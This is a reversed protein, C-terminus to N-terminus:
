GTPGQGQVSTSLPQGSSRSAFCYYSRQGSKWQEETAPFTGQVQLDPYAAAANLDIVGGATCLTNIQQALADAGPYPAAPDASLLNTYVMQATHDATCDVVTFTEAWPSTYPQICEGGGLADWPHQGPGVAAAPKPIVTPTPTPTPTPSASPTKSAAVPHSPASAGFLSPILTGLAFLGVLVLLVALVGAILYVRRTLRPDRPDRPGRPSDRPTVPPTAPPTAAPSTPPAAPPTSAAPGAAAQAATAEPGAAPSSTPAGAPDPATPALPERAAAAADFAVTPPATTDFDYAGVGADPGAGLQPGEMAATPELLTIDGAARDADPSAQADGALGPFLIADIGTAEGQPTDVSEAPTPLPSSAAEPEVASHSGDDVQAHDGRSLDPVDDAVETGDARAFDGFLAAIGDPEDTDDLDDTDTLDGTETLDGPATLDTAESGGAPEADDPHGSPEASAPAAPLGEVPIAATPLDASAAALAEADIPSTAPSPPAGLLAETQAAEGFPVAAPPVVPEPSAPEIPPPPVIVEASAPDSEARLAERRTVPVPNADPGPAPPASAPPAVAGETPSTTSQALPTSPPAPSSIPVDAPVAGPTNAGSDAAGVGAAGSGTAGPDETGAGPTVADSTTADPTAVEPFAGPAAASPNAPPPTHTPPTYTPPLPIIGTTDGLLPRSAPREEQYAGLLAALGHGHLPATDNTTPKPEDDREHVNPRHDVRGEDAPTSSDSTEDSGVSAEAPVSPAEGWEPPRPMRLAAVFSPPEFRPTPATPEARSPEAPSASAAPSEVSPAPPSPTAPTPAPPSPAVPTQAVPAEPQTAPAPAAAEPARRTQPEVFNTRRVPSIVVDTEGEAEAEAESVEGESAGAGALAASAAEPAEAGVPTSPTAPASPGPDVSQTSVVADDREGSQRSTLNWVFGQPAAAIQTTDDGEDAADDSTSPPAERLLEAFDLPAAREAAAGGDEAPTTPERLLDDFAGFAASDEAPTSGAPPQGRLPDGSGTSASSGPIGPAVVGDGALENHGVVASGGAVDGDGAVESDGAIEGHGAVADAVGGLAVDGEDRSGDSPAGPTEDAREVRRGGTLQALLWESSGFEPETSDVHQQPDREPQDPEGGTGRDRHEAM